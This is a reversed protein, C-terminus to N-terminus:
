QEAPGRVLAFLLGLAITGAACALLTPRAGFSTVLPGGLATGLPASVVIIAGNAALVGSLEEPATSRQFLAMTTAPYPAWILGALAFGGLTAALPAGLGFPLMAVGFAMVIGVTTPWLPRHRLYGTLLGGLVAGIGFATFYAGLLAASGHLDRAVHVPLAVYVPGFLLFFGFTLVLLRVHRVAFGRPVPPVPSSPVLRYTLALLAFSAADLAIVLVPGSVAILLGALPPGVITAVEGITNLVANAALHHEPPLLEAVLTYRGANGWAALLSSVALLGVYVEIRLGGGLYVVPIAGLAGARLLANWGALQAGSRGRMLRAFLVTGLAAPLTYAAVALAVWTGSAGSLQLALWSVAVVSMGDGLASVALGPLVRRLQPHTLVPRYPSPM